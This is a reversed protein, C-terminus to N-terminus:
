NAALFLRYAKQISGLPAMGIIRRAAVQRILPAYSTLFRVERDPEASGHSVDLV